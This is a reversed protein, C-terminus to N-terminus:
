PSTVRYFRQSKNTAGSDLFQYLSYSGNPTEAPHGLSQWQNFPLALNTTSWITLDAGASPVNTFSVQFGTQLSTGKLIPPTVLVTLAPAFSVGKLTAESPATYLINTSTLNIPQNWAASDHVKVVSNSATGGSGTTYYLDVGGGANTATCLGDGGNATPWSNGTSVWIQQGTMPDINGTYYYKFIAGSTNNTGDIYYVTDYNTGSNGSRIMYFDLVNGDIPFGELPFLSQSGSGPAPVITMVTSYPDTGGEQQLAYVVGNFSKLSRVNAPNAISYPIYANGSTNGNTYVGGKDGMFWTMNDVSTASRAQNGTTDGLGTYTAQLVFSGAANLTGAGRPDITTEDATASSGDLFANFCVLTGDDSDALRGTSGSSSERMANTGTASIPFTNVPSSQSVITSNVELISFTSNKAAVDEQLVALNGRTFGTTAPAPIDFATSNTTTYPLGGLGTAGSATFTITAGPVASSGSVIASLNTFTVMGNTLLQTSGSGVGFGWGSSPTATYVASCNTAVNNYQDLVELAPQIVLTGGNGTPAALQSTINLQKAAGSAIYQTVTDISYGTSDISLSDMGATQLLNAPASASPTFVIKGASIVYGATLVIGNVRVATIHNRWNNNDPFTITFPGDVTAASSPTLSPPTLVSGSSAGNIIINDFRWNGSSNNLATGLGNVCSAGTSANVLRIAFSPNNAAAPISITAALNTFWQQGGTTPLCNVYYGQVSNPDGGGSNDVFQLSSGSEAAPITIPFNIWTSGDATYELQLNAEGQKTLYWNFTVALNTFGTTDVNFQAGQTGVPAQSSWGNGAGQARVRWIQTYNTIGNAGTDGSTGQLVDPDNTGYGTTPWNTMGLAAVSVAGVCNNVSPAPNPVYSSITLNEFTWQAITTQAQAASLLALLLAATSAIIKRKM